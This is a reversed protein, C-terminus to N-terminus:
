EGPEPISVVFIGHHEHGGESTMAVRPSLPVVPPIRPIGPPILLHSAVGLRDGVMGSRKLHNHLIGPKKVDVGYDVWVGPFMKILRANKQKRM